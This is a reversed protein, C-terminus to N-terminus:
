TEQETERAAEIEQVAQEVQTATLRWSEVPRLVEVIAPEAYPRYAEVDRPLAAVVAWKFAQHLAWARTAVISKPVRPREEFVDALISLATDAPGSGGYGWELGTPSHYVIHHM